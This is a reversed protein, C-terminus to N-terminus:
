LLFEMQSRYLTLLNYIIVNASANRAFFTFATTAARYRSSINGIHGMMGNSTSNISIISSTLSSSQNQMNSILSQAVDIKDIISQVSALYQAHATNKEQESPNTVHSYTLNDKSITTKLLNLSSLLTTLNQSLVQTQDIVQSFPDVTMSSLDVNASATDNSPDSDM